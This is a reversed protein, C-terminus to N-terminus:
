AGRTEVPNVVQVAGGQVADKTAARRLPKAHAPQAGDGRGCGQAREDAARREGERAVGAGGQSQQLPQLPTLPRPPPDACALSPPFSEPTTPPALLRTKEGGEGWRQRAYSVCGAVEAAEKVAQDKRSKVDQREVEKLMAVRKKLDEYSSM